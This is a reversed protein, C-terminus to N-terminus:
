RRGTWIIARRIRREDPLWERILGILSFDTGVGTGIALRYFVSSKQGTEAINTSGCSNFSLLARACVPNDGPRSVSRLKRRSPIGSAASQFDNPFLLQMPVPIPLARVEGALVGGVAFLLVILTGGFFALIGSIKYLIGLINVHLEM